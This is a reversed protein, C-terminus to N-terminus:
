GHGPRIVLTDLRIDEIVQHGDQRFKAQANELMRAATVQALHTQGPLGGGRWARGRQTSRKGARREPAGSVTAPVPMGRGEVVVRFCGLDCVARRYIAKEDRNNGDFGCLRLTKLM